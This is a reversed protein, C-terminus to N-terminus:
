TGDPSDDVEAVPLLEIETETTIRVIGSPVTEIVRILAAHAGASSGVVGVLDVGLLSVQAQFDRRAPSVSFSEGTTVMQDVLASRIDYPSIDLARSSGLTVCRIREAPKADYRRVEVTEGIDVLLKRRQTGDLRVLDLEDDEIGAPLASALIPHKGIIQVLNGRRLNLADFAQRSIRARGEAIDELRADGVHLLLSPANWDM